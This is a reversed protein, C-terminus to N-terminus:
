IDKSQKWLIEFYNLYAKALAPNKIEIISIPEQFIQLAISNNWILVNAPTELKAPIIRVSYYESATKGTDIKSKRNYEIMKFWFRKKMRLREYQSYKDGMLEYWKDGIAGLVYLVSDPKIKRVLDLNFNRFGELGEHIIIEQKINAVKSLKPIVEEAVSLKEKQIELIRIPDTPQFIAVNKKILKMVMKKIVLKDLTEYVINRHLSTKKIVAGAPSQGLEILALYVQAENHSFGLKILDNLM